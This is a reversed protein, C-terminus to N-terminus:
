PSVDTSRAMAQALDAGLDSVEISTHNQKGADSYALEENTKIINLAQILENPKHPLGIVAVCDFDRWDNKGTINGFHDLAIEAGIDTNEIWLKVEPELAKHTVIFLKNEDTLELNISDLMSHIIKKDLSGAGTVTDAINIDFGNYNRTKKTPVMVVDQRHQEQLEYITSIPATADLVAFSVGNPLLEKVGTISQGKKSAFAGAGLITKLKGALIIVENKYRWEFSYQHFQLAKCVFADKDPINRLSSIFSNVTEINNAIVNDKSFVKKAEIAHKGFIEVYTDNSFERARELDQLMIYGTEKGDPLIAGLFDSYLDLLSLMDESKLAKAVHTMRQIDRDDLRAAEVNHLAEDVIFLDRDDALTKWKKNVDTAKNLEALYVISGQTKSEGTAMSVVYATSVKDDKAGNDAIVNNMTTAFQLWNYDMGNAKTQGFGNWRNGMAQRYTETAIPTEATPMVTTNLQVAQVVTEAELDNNHEHVDMWNVEPLLNKIRNSM